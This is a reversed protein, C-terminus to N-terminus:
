IKLEERERPDRWKLGLARYIEEQTECAIIEGPEHGECDKSGAAIVGRYPGM